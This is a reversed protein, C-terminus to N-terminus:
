GLCDPDLIPKNLPPFGPSAQPSWGHPALSFNRGAGARASIERRKEVGLNPVAERGEESCNAGGSDEESGNAGGSYEFQKWAKRGRSIKPGLGRVWKKNKNPGGAM